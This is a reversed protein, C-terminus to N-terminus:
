GDPRGEKKLLNSVDKKLSTMEKACNVQMLHLEGKIGVYGGNGLTIKIDAVDKKISTVDNKVNTDTAGRVRGNQYILIGWGVIPSAIGIIVVAINLDVM